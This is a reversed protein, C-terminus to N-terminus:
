TTLGSFHRYPDIKFLSPNDTWIRAVYEYPTLGHRTKLRRAHNYADIFLELHQQLQDHSDYQYRKVMADKITRNV